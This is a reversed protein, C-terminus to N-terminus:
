CEDRASQEERLVATVTDNHVSYRHCAQALNMRRTRIWAIWTGPAGGCTGRSSVIQADKGLDDTRARASHRGVTVESAQPQDQGLVRM